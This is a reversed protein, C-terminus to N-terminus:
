SRTRSQSGRRGLARSKMIRRHERIMGWQISANRLRPIWEQPEAFWRKMWFLIENEAARRLLWLPVGLVSRSPYPPMDECSNATSLRIETAGSSLYYHRLYRLSQRDAGILHEVGAEPLWLGEHGAELISTMVQLEEGGLLQGGKRGLKMDFPFRKQVSRRVAFNAGYPLREPVLRFSGAGLDRVAYAGEVQQWGKRLWAPPLSDFCPLIPGGFLAVQPFERLAKAYSRLWADGVLVDDDTWLLLEARSETIGRNRAASLGQTLEIVSRIPLRGAFSRVISQTHDRCNNDIVLVEWALDKPVSISALRELARGLLDARNWTCIVVSIDLETESQM